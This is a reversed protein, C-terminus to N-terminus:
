ALISGLYCLCTKQKGNSLDPSDYPHLFFFKHLLLTPDWHGSAMIESAHCWSLLLQLGCAGVPFLFWITGIAVAMQPLFYILLQWKKQWFFSQMMLPPWISWFGCIKGVCWLSKFARPPTCQCPLPAQSHLFWTSSLNLCSDSKRDFSPSCWWHRDSQGFAVYRVM